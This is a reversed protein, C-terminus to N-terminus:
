IYEYSGAESSEEKPKPESKEESQEIRPENDIIEFILVRDHLTDNNFESAFITRNLRSPRQTWTTRLWKYKGRALPREPRLGPALTVLKAKANVYM